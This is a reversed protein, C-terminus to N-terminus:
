IRRAHKCYARISQLTKTLKIWLRVSYAGSGISHATSGPASSAVGAHFCAFSLLEEGDCGDGDMNSSDARRCCRHELRLPPCRRPQQQCPAPRALDGRPFASILAGTLCIDSSVRGHSGTKRCMSQVLSNCESQISKSATSQNHPLMPQSIMDSCLAPILRCFGISGGATNSRRAEHSTRCMLRLSRKGVTKLSKDAPMKNCLFLFRPRHAPDVFECVTTPQRKEGVLLPEQQESVANTSGRIRTSKSLRRAPM